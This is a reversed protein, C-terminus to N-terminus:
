MKCTVKDVRADKFTHYKLEPRGCASVAMWQLMSKLQPDGKFAGCGWNGTAVPRLTDKQINYWHPSFPVMGEHVVDLSLESGAKELSYLFTDIKSLGKSNDVEYKHSSLHDDLDEPLKLYSLADRIIIEALMSSYDDLNEVMRLAISDLETPSPPMSGDDRTSTTSWAISMRSSSPQLALPDLFDGGDTESFPKTILRPNGGSTQRLHSGKSKHGKKKKGSSGIKFTKGIVTKKPTVSLIASEVAGTVVQEATTEAALVDPAPSVSPSPTLPQTTGAKEVGTKIAEEVITDVFELPLM